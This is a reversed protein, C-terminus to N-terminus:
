NSRSFCEWGVTAPCHLWDPEDTAVQAREAYQIKVREGNKFLFIGPSFVDKVADALAEVPGTGPAGIAAYFLSVQFIGLHRKSGNGVDYPRGSAPILTLRAWVEGAVSAPRNFGVGEYSRKTTGPFGAATLAREQLAGRINQYLSPM